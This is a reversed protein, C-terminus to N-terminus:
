ENDPWKYEFGSLPEGMYHWMKESEDVTFCIAAPTHGQGSGENWNSVSFGARKFIKNIKDKNDSENSAAIRIYSNRNTTARTGDGCYWHKLITPTLEIDEPFVKEGSKYWNFENFNENRRTCWSYIDNYNEINGSSEFGSDRNMNDLMSEEATKVKKVGTGMVPFIERDLHLLYEKATMSCRIRPNKSSLRDLSGDGMMLGTVVEKQNDTLKPYKCSTQYSGWHGGIHEFCKGCQDCTDWSEPTHEPNKRYHLQQLNTKLSYEKGCTVCSSKEM